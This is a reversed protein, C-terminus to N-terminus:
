PSIKESYKDLKEKAELFANQWVMRQEPNSFILTINEIEENIIISLELSLLHSSSAQKEALQRNLNMLMDKVVDELAQHQCSLTSIM